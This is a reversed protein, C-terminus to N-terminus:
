WFEDETMAIIKFEFEGLESNQVRYNQIQVGSEAKMKVVNKRIKSTKGIKLYIV